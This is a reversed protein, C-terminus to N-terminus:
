RRTQVATVTETDQNRPRHRRGLGHRHQDGLRRELDAQTITYRPPAPSRSVRTSTADLNGVTLGPLDRRDGQRRHDHGPRGPHRQRHQDGPLQLQHRRRGTTPRRAAGDQRADAGPEPRRHRDRHGPELDTGGASRRPSTPSRAPTSTPRPSRTAPRAPSRSVPDLFRRPQRGHSAPCTVDHGQRRHGHGPGALRSTAPTPSWTATASSTASRTTPRAADGDQRADPRRRSPPSRRPTRTALHHRRGHRRPRTPSRAPTSTPRPSRTPRPAPSRSVRPSSADLNGVTTM